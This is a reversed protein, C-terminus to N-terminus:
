RREVDIQADDVFPQEFVANLEVLADFNGRNGTLADIHNRAACKHDAEVVAEILIPCLRENGLAVLANTREARRGNRVHPVDHHGIRRKGGVVEEVDFM